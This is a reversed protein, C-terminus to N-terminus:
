ENKCRREAAERALKERRQNARFIKNKEAFASMSFEDLDNTYEGNKRVTFKDIGGVRNRVIIEGEEADKVADIFVAFLAKDDEEEIVKGDVSFVLNWGASVTWRLATIIPPLTYEEVEASVLARAVRELAKIKRSPTRVAVIYEHWEKGFVTICLTQQADAIQEILTNRDYGDSYVTETPFSEFTVSWVPKNELEAVLNTAAEVLLSREIVKM